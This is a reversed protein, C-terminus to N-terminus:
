ATAGKERSLGHDLALNPNATMLGRKAAIARLLNEFGFGMLLMYARVYALKQLRIGPRNQSEDRIELFSRLIPEAAMRIGQAQEVWAGPDLATLGFAEEFHGRQQKMSKRRELKRM